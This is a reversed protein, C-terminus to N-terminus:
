KRRRKPQEKEVLAPPQEPDASVTELAPEQVPEPEKVAEAMRHLLLYPVLEGDYEQGPELHIRADQYHQKLKVKM